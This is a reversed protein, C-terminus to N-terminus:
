CWVVWSCSLQCITVGTKLTDPQVATHSSLHVQWLVVALPRIQRVCAHVVYVAAHHLIKKAHLGWGSDVIMNAHV